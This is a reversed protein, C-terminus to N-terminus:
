GNRSHAKLATWSLGGPEVDGAWERHYLTHELYGAALLDRHSEPLGDDAAQM